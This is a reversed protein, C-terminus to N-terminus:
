HAAADRVCRAIPADAAVDLPSRALIPRVSADECVSRVIGRLEELVADVTEGPLTRREVKLTCEPAYTSLGVGGQVLACHMSAPGVLPHTRPRLTTTDFAELATIVRAMRAVASVGLDWRSGHAARGPVVVEAWVFGKHARVLAGSSAETLLCADARHRA